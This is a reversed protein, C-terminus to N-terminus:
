VFRWRYFTLGGSLTAMTTTISIVTQGRLMWILGMRYGGCPCLWADLKEEAVPGWRVLRREKEKFEKDILSSPLSMFGGVMKLTATM